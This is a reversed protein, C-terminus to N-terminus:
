ASCAGCDFARHFTRAPHAVVCLTAADRPEEVTAQHRLYTAGHEEVMWVDDIRFDVSAPIETRAALMGPIGRAALSLWEGNQKGLELTLRDNGFVLRDNQETLYIDKHLTQRGGSTPPRQAAAVVAM